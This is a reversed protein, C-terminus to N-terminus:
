LSVRRGDAGAHYQVIGVRGPRGRVSNPGDTISKLLFYTRWFNPCIDLAATLLYWSAIRRINQEMNRSITVYAIHM